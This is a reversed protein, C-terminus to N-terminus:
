EFMAMISQIVPLPDGSELEAGKINAFPIFINRNNKNSHAIFGVPTMYISSDRGSRISVQSGILDLGVALQAVKGKVPKKTPVLEEPLNKTEQKSLDETLILTNYSHDVLKKPRAM